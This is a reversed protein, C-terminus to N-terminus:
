HKTLTVICYLKTRITFFTQQSSPNKRLWLVPARTLLFDGTSVPWQRLQQLLAINDQPLGFGMVVPCMRVWSLLFFLFHQQTRWQRTQAVRGLMVFPVGWKSLVRAQNWVSLQVPDIPSQISSSYQSSLWIHCLSTQLTKLGTSDLHWSSTSYSFSSCLLAMDLPGSILLSTVIQHLQLELLKIYHVNFYMYLMLKPNYVMTQGWMLLLCIRKIFNTGSYECIKHEFYNIIHCLQM